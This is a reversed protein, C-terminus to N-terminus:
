LSGNLPDYKDGGKVFPDTPKRAPGQPAPAEKAREAAKRAAEEARKKEAEELKKRQEETLKAFAERHVEEITEPPATRLLYRYREIAREDDTPQGRRAAPAAAGDTGFLRDLFGM